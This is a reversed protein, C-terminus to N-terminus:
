SNKPPSQAKQTVLFGEVQSFQEFVAKCFKGVTVIPTGMTVGKM